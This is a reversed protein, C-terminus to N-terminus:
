RRRPRWASSARCASGAASGRRRRTAASRCRRDGTRPASARAGSRQPSRTRMSSCGARRARESGSSLGCNRPEHPDRAAKPWAGARRRSPRGHIKAPPSLVLASYRPARARHRHARVDAGTPIGAERGSRRRRRPTQDDSVPRAAASGWARAKRRGLRRTATRSSRSTTATTWADTSPLLVTSTTNSRADYARSVAAYAVRHDTKQPLAVERQEPERAEDRDGAVPHQVGREREEDVLARVRRNGRRPHDGRLEPRADEDAGECADVDVAEVPPAQEDHRIEQLCQRHARQEDHVSTRQPDHVGYGGHLRHERRERLRRLTRKQRREDSRLHQQGGVGERRQVAAHGAEHAHREAAQREPRSPREGTTSTSVADKTAAATITLATTAGARMGECSGADNAPFHPARAQAEDSALVRDRDEEGHEAQHCEAARHRDGTRRRPAPRGSRPGDTKASSSVACETAPM